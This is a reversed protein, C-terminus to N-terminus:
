LRNTSSFIAKEGSFIGVGTDRVACVSWNAGAARGPRVPANQLAANCNAAGRRRDGASVHGPRFPTLFGTKVGPM